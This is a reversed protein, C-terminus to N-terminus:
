KQYNGIVQAVWRQAAIMAPFGATTLALLVAHQLERATIGEELGQRAHSKVAGEAGLGVAIGLKVLRRTKEDLPGWDHTKRALQDYAGSIDAYGKQFEQYADPLYAM